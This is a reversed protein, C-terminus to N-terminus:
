LVAQADLQLIRSTDKDAGNPSLIQVIRESAFGDGFVTRPRAMRAYLVPDNAVQEAREIIRDPDTGVVMASGASVAEPRETVERLVLTPRGLACAEEQIGGSDTLILNCQVLRRVWQDYPPSDVFEIANCDTLAGLVQKRLAPNPHLSFIFRWDRNRRALDAIATCIHDMRRGWNERRHATVLITFGNSTLPKIRSRVLRMADIVTNGVLHIADRNVGEAILNEVARVTPAFHYTALHTLQKRALEEPFPDHMNGSRLGAEVHAVPVRRLAAALGGAYASLTDGQVVVVDPNVQDILQGTANIMTAASACLDGNVSAGNLHLDAKIGFVSLADAAITPHQGTLCVLPEANSPSMSARAALVIPAIKIAEPRTGAIFLMRTM